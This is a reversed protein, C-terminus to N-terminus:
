DGSRTKVRLGGNGSRRCGSDLTNLYRYRRSAARVTTVTSGGALAPFHGPGDNRATSSYPLTAVINRVSVSDLTKIDPRRLMMASPLRVLRRPNTKGRFGVIAVGPKSGSDLTKLQGRRPAVLLLSETTMDFGANKPPKPPKSQNM